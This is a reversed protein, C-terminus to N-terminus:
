ASVAKIAKNVRSRAIDCYEACIDIGVFGRGSLVAMKGTTGSGCFPDLVLDGAQSWTEIQDAALQEPFVAPHNVSGGGISYYFINGHLKANKVTHKESGERHRRAQRTDQVNSRNGWEMPKGANKTPIRIGNFTNPRKGKLLVFMFEFEQEYRRHNQPIPNKKAYLMTDYLKFGVNIFELAQKFSSGTEGGNKTQDGIVWVVIGGDKTVRYLQCAVEKFKEFTFPEQEGYSRMSDYPPSTVTLDFTCDPFRGLVEAADGHIVDAESM